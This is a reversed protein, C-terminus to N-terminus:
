QLRFSVDYTGGGSYAGDVAVYVPQNNSVPISLTESVGESWDNACMGDDQTFADGCTRRAVLMLDMSASPNLTVVLTGAAHPTIAYVHEPAGNVNSASVVCSMDTKTWTNGFPITSGTGTVTKGPWVHVPQGPCSGATTPDGGIQQCSASCGDGDVNGGDDCAEGTSVKEDGCFSGPTLRMTVTYKGASGSAGDVVLFYERGTVVNRQMQELGGVGTTEGCAIQTKADECTTRVYVTPNLDGEGKVKISLNGSATPQLRYVHDGGGSGTICAGTDGKFDDSANTTDGQLVIDTNAGLATAKGPCTELADKPTTPEIPKGDEDIPNGEHDVPRGTNPDEIEGGKCIGGNGTTCQEFSTGDDMCLKTGQARDACRCFVYAGPTCIRDESSEADDTLFCGPTAAFAVIAFLASALVSTPKM